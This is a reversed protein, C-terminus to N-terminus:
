NELSEKARLFETNVMSPLRMVRLRQDNDLFSSNYVATDLNAKISQGQAMMLRGRAMISNGWVFGLFGVVVAGAIGEEGMMQGIQFYGAVAILIMVGMVLGGIMRTTSGTQVVDDATVYAEKYRTMLTHTDANVYKKEKPANAM